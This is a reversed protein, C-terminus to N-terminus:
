KRCLKEIRIRWQRHLELLLEKLHIIEEETVTKYNDYNKRLQKNEEELEEKGRNYGFEAGDKFAEERARYDSAYPLIDYSCSEYNDTAYEEAEKEFM